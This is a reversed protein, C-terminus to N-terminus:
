EEQLGQQFVQEMATASRELDADLAKAEAGPQAEYGAALFLRGPGLSLQLSSPAIM